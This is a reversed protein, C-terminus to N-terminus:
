FGGNKFSSITNLLAKLESKFEELSDEKLSPIWPIFTPHLAFNYILKEIEKSVEKDRIIVLGPAGFGQVIEGFTKIEEDLVISPSTVLVFVNADKVARLSEAGLGSPAKLINAKNDEIPYSEKIKRILFGEWAQGLALRGAYLTLNDTKAQGIEGSVIEEWDIAHDPCVEVCVGCGRCISVVRVPKNDEKKIAGFQCVDFCKQHFKCKDYLVKSVRRKITEGSWNNFFPILKPYAVDFEYLSVETDEAKLKALNFALTTRGIGGTSALLAINM